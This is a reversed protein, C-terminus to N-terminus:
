SPQAPALVQHLPTIIGTRHHLHHHDGPSTVTSPLLDESSSRGSVATRLTCLLKSQEVVPFLVVTRLSKITTLGSKKLIMVDLCKKWCLPSYSSKISVKALKCEIDSILDSRAGAKMTTFLLADPYCSTTEKAKHWFHRYEPLSITM